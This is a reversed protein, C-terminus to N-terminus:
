TNYIHRTTLPLSCHPLVGYVPGGAVGCVCFYTGSIFGPVRGVTMHGRGVAPRQRRTIQAEDCLESVVGRERYLRLVRSPSM